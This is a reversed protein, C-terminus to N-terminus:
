LQENKRGLRAFVPLHDFHTKRNEILKYVSELGLETAQEDIYWKDGDILNSSFIMQDFLRWNGLIGSRHYYSGCFRNCDSMGLNKWYPNYFLDKKKMVRTRDRSAMLSEALAIEFPESNYDGMLIIAPNGDISESIDDCYNRITTALQPRISDNESQLKSPWHSVIVLFRSTEYTEVVLSHGARYTRGALRWTLVESKLIQLKTSDYIYAQSFNGRGASEHCGIIEYSTSSLSKKFLELDSESVEGIALFDVSKFKLIERVVIDVCDASHATSDDRTQGNPSLSTNWWCFTLHNLRELIM